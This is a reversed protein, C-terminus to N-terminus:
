ETRWVRYKKEGTKRVTFKRGDKVHYKISAYISSPSRYDIEFSDGVEMTLLVHWRNEKGGRCARPIPVGKEIQIM